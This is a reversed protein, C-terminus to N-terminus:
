EGKNFTVYAETLDNILLDYCSKGNHLDITITFHRKATIKRLRSSPTPSAVGGKVAIVGDYFIDILEEKVRARSYGIVDMIRGWNPDNGCWSSKVLPSRAIANVIRRADRESVANKVQLEVVKTIGEGDEIIMRALRRMVAILSEQFKELDSHGAKLPTNGALGNSLVIVTDNTSTDGDVSIRNFSLNVAETVCSRLLPSSIAADTTICALMTAMNPHIMGAGKAMGGITIIRGGLELSLACEKHITDSTMIARAATRGGARTCKPALKEIGKLIKKIPLPIGIRGTSCVLVENKRCAVATAAAQAMAQADRIGQVGTCANANGSNLVVARVRGRRAHTMSVKVPAAKIANTTFVAGVEAETESVVMALDKKDGDKIGCTTGGATFGPATAVGGNKIWKPEATNVM